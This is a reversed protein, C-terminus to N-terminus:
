RTKKMGIGQKSGDYIIVFGEQRYGIMRLYNKLLRLERKRGFFGLIGIDSFYKLNLKKNINKMM